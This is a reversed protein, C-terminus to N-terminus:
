QGLGALLRRLGPAAFGATRRPAFAGLVLAGVVYALVAAGEDRGLTGGSRRAIGDIEGDLLRRVRKFLAPARQAEAFLGVWARAAEVDAGPGLRLAAEGYADLPALGDAELGRVGARFRAMLGTMLVELLEDKDRFHHHVLGPAVGAEEAVAAITARAFGQRALVRGFAAAIERRRKERVSPRGM